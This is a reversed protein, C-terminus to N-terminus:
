LQLIDTLWEREEDACNLYCFLNSVKQRNVNPRYINNNIIILTLIIVLSILLIRLRLDCETIVPLLLGIKM